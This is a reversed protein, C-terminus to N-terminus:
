RGTAVRLFIQRKVCDYADYIGIRGDRFALYYCAVLEAEGPRRRREERIRPISWEQDIHIQELLFPSPVSLLASFIQLVSEQGSDPPESATV